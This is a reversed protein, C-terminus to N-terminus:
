RFDFGASDMIMSLAESRTIDKLPQFFARGYIDRRSTTIINNDALIEVSRCAWTNPRSIGVDYFTNQCNYDNLEPINEIRGCKEAM